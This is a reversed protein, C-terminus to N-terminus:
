VTGADEGDDCWRRKWDLQPIALRTGADGPWPVSLGAREVAQKVERGIAAAKEDADGEVDGFAMMLGVGRVAREVDQEHYFCFGRSGRATGSTCNRPSM